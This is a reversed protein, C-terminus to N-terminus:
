HNPLCNSCVEAGDPCGTITPVEAGCDSCTSIADERLPVDKTIGYDEKWARRIPQFTHDFQAHKVSDYPEIDTLSTNGCLDLRIDGCDGNVGDGDGYVNLVTALRQEPLVFVKDGAEYKM